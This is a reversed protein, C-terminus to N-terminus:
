RRKRVFRGLAFAAGLAMLAYTSPEPISSFAIQDLEVLMNGSPTDFIVNFSDIGSAFEPTWNPLLSLDIIFSSAAFESDPVIFTGSVTPLLGNSLDVALAQLNQVSSFDFRLFHQETAYLSFDSYTIQNISDQSDTTVLLYSGDAVQVTAQANLNDYDDIDSQIQRQADDYGAITVTSNVTESPNAPYSVSFDPVNVSFDDLITDTQTPSLGAAGYLTATIGSQESTNVLAWNTVKSADFFVGPVLTSQM